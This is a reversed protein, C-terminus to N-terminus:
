LLPGGGCCSGEVGRLRALVMLWAVVADMRPRERYDQAWCFQILEWLTDTLQPSLEASPRPPRKGEVVRVIVAAAWLTSAFPRARTYMEYCLMGFSYVDSETSLPLTADPTRQLMGADGNTGLLLEPRLATDMLEPALWRADDVGHFGWDPHNHSPFVSSGKLDGHIIPPNQKHLFSLGAAVGQMLHFVDTDPHEALVQNVTRNSQVVLAPLNSIHLAVGIVPAINPHDLARWRDLDRILRKTFQVRSQHPVVAGHWRKLVVRQGRYDAGSIVFANGSNEIELGLIEEKPIVYKSCHDALNRADTPKEWNMAYIKRLTLYWSTLTILTLFYDYISPSM